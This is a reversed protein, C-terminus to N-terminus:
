GAKSAPPGSVAEQLCHGGRTRHPSQQGDSGPLQV